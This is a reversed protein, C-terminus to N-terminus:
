CCVCSIGALVCVFNWGVSVCKGAYLGCMSVMLKMGYDNLLELLVCVFNWGVFVCKGAYLGCMYVMLKLGYDIM